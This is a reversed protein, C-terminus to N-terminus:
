AKRKALAETFDRELRVSEAILRGRLEPDVVIQALGVRVHRPAIHKAAHSSSMKANIAAAVLRRSFFAGMEAVAGTYKKMIARGDKGDAEKAEAATINYVTPYLVDELRAGRVRRRRRKAKPNTTAPDTADAM